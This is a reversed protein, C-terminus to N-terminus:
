TKFDPSVFILVLSSLYLFSKAGTADEGLVMARESLDVHRELKARAVKMM